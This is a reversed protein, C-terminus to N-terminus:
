SAKQAEKLLYPFHTLGQGSLRRKEEVEKELVAIETAHERAEELSSLEPIAGPLQNGTTMKRYIADELRNEARGLERALEEGSKEM